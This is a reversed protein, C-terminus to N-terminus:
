ASQVSPLADGCKRKMIWSSRCVLKARSTKTCPTTVTRAEPSASSPTSAGLSIRHNGYSEVPRSTAFATSPFPQVPCIEHGIVTKAARAAVRIRVVDVRLPPLSGSASSARKIPWLSDVAAAAAIRSLWVIFSRRQRLKVPGGALLMVRLSASTVAVRRWRRAIDRHDHAAAIYAALRNRRAAIRTRRRRRNDHGPGAATQVATM